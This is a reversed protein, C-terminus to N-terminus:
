RFFYTRPWLIGYFPDGDWRPPWPELPPEEERPEPRVGVFPIALGARPLLSQETVCVSGRKRPGVIVISDWWISSQSSPAVIAIRDCWVLSQNSTAVIVIRDCWVSSHSSRAVIAIRDCWISSQNSTAVIVIKDCWVSSINSPGVIVFSDCWVLSQSSLAVIVMRDCWVSNQNNTVGIVIRNCWCTVVNTPHDFRVFVFEKTGRLVEESTSWRRLLEVCNRKLHTHKIKRLFMEQKTSGHHFKVREHKAWSVGKPNSYRQSNWIRLRPITLLEDMAENWWGCLHSCPCM